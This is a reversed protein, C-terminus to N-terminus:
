NLSSSFSHGGGMTPTKPGGRCRPRPPTPPTAAARYRRTSYQQRGRPPAQAPTPTAAVRTDVRGRVIRRDSSGPACRNPRLWERRRRRRGGVRHRNKERT